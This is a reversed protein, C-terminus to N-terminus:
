GAAISFPSSFDYLQRPNLVWMREWQDQSLWCSLSEVWAADDIELFAEVKNYDTAKRDEHRQTHPWDSGWLIREPNAAAISRIDDELDDFGPGMNSCRYPASLKIWVNGDRLAGLLAEFGNVEIDPRVGKDLMSRGVILGIHDVVLPFPITAAKERLQGWYDIHPQQIQISWTAGGWQALRASLSDILSLQQNLDHMAKHRFFDLRVSRVGAAHYVNLMENTVTDIDLVCIGCASRGFHKLYTLLSTCDSGYSLGHAICFHDIKLCRQFEELQARTATSPTFHRQSAFSFNAPEFIHVHTDWAGPPITKQSVM